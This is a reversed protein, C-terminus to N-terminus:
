NYMKSKRINWIKLLYKSLKRSYSDCILKFLDAQSGQVNCNICTLFLDRENQYQKCSFLFHLEDEVDDCFHCIRYKADIGRFRGTEIHLPLIGCRIQAILSRQSRSMNLKVYNETGFNENLLCYTRLKPKIDEKWKKWYNEFLLKYCIELDCVSMSHYYHTIQTTFWSHNLHHLKPTNIGSM